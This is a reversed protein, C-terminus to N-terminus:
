RDGSSTAAMSAAAGGSATAPSLYGSTADEVRLAHRSRDTPQDRLQARAQPGPGFVTILGYCDNCIINDVVAVLESHVNAKKRSCGTRTLM